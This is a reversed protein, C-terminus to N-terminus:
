DRGRNPTAPPQPTPRTLKHQALLAEQTAKARQAFEVYPMGSLEEIVQTLMTQGNIPRRTERQALLRGQIKEILPEGFRQYADIMVYRFGAASTPFIRAEAEPEDIAERKEGKNWNLLDLGLGLARRSEGLRKSLM